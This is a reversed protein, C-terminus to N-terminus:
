FNTEWNLKKEDNPDPEDVLANIPENYMEILKQLLEDKKVIHKYIANITEEKERRHHALFAGRFLIPIMTMPKDGLAELNFGAGEIERVTRKTFELEYDTGEYKFKITKAM